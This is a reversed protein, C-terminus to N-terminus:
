FFNTGGIKKLAQVLHELLKGRMILLNAFLLKEHKLQIIFIAAVLKFLLIMELYKSFVAGFFKEFLM